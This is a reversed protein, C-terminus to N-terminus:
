WLFPLAIRIQRLLEAVLEKLAAEDAPPPAQTVPPSQTDGPTAVPPKAPQTTDTGSGTPAPPKGASAGSDSSAGTAPAPKAGMAEAVSYYIAIHHVKRNQIKISDAGQNGDITTLDDGDISKIICHHNYKNFEKKIIVMDGPGMNAVDGRYKCGILRTNWYVPLGAKQWAWTGFIGCWDNIKKGVTQLTKLWGPREKEMDTLRYAAEYIEKLHQWGVRYGDEGKREHVTGVKSEALEVIRQRMASVNDVPQSDPPTHSPDGTAEDGPQTVLPMDLAPMENVMEDLSQGSLPAFIGVLLLAAALVYYKM